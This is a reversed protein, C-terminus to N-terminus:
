EAAKFSINVADIADLMKQTEEPPAEGGSAEKGVKMIEDKTLTLTMASADGSADFNIKQGEAELALKGGDLSWKLDSPGAGEPAGELAITGDEKFEITVASVLGVLGKAQTLQEKAAEDEVKGIIRDVEAQLADVDLKWKTGTLVEKSLGGGGCATMLTVFVLTLVINSKLKM